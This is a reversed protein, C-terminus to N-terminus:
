VETGKRADRQTQGEHTRIFRLDSVRWGVARGGGVSGKSGWTEVMVSVKWQESSQAQM